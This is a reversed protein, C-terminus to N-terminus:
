QKEDSVGRKIRQWLKRDRVVTTRRGAGAAILRPQESSNDIMQWSNALPQYLNFFNRLGAHYRKRITATPVSHGGRQVREEVRRIAVEPTPLWLFVLGFTYGTKLLNKILPAFSRSALTTEFAFSADAAALEQIRSLMQRGAELATAQPHMSPLQRAIDDANVFERVRFKGRLLEVASTSKGSGNPGALVVIKPTRTPKSVASKKHPFKAM